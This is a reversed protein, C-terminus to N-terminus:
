GTETKAAHAKRAGAAPDIHLLRFPLQDARILRTNIIKVSGIDIRSAFSRDPLDKLLMPYPLLHVDCCFERM